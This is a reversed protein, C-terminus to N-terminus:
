VQWAARESAGSLVASFHRQPAQKRTFGENLAVAGALTQGGAALHLEHVYARVIQCRGAQIM